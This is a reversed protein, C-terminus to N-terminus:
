LKRGKAVQGPLLFTQPYAGERCLKFSEFDKYWLGDPVNPKSEVWLRLQNLDDLSIRRDRMREILHNRVGRPLRAWSGIQPV